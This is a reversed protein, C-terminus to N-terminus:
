KKGEGDYDNKTLVGCKKKIRAGEETGTACKGM